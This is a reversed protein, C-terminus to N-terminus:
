SPCCWKTWSPVLAQSSSDHLCHCFDSSLLLICSPPPAPPPVASSEPPSDRPLPPRPPCDYRLHHSLPSAGLPGPGLVWCPCLPSLVHEPFHLISILACCHAPLPNTLAPSSHVPTRHLLLMLHLLPDLVPSPHTCFASHVAPIIANLGQGPSVPRLLPM